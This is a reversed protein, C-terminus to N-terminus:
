GGFVKSRYSPGCIRRAMGSCDQFRTQGTLSQLYSLCTPHLQSLALMWEAAALTPTIAALTFAHVLFLRGLQMVGGRRLALISRTPFDFYRIMTPHGCGHIFFDTSHSLSRDVLCAISTAHTFFCLLPSVRRAGPRHSFTSAKM